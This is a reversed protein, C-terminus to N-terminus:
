EANVSTIKPLLRFPPACLLSKPCHPAGEAIPNCPALKEALPFLMTMLRTCGSMIHLFDTKGKKGKGLQWRRQTKLLSSDRELM